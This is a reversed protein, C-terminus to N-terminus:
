SDLWITEYQFGHVTAQSDPKLDGKIFSQGVNLHELSVFGVYPARENLYTLIERVAAKREDPKFLVAQREVMQDVTSEVFGGFNLSGKSHYVQRLATDPDYYGGRGAFGVQFEGNRLTTTHVPNELLRIQQPQVVGQGLRNWQSHLLQSPTEGSGGVDATIDFRIPRERSFGAASLLSIAERVADDKQQRWALFRRPFEEQPFDWSDMLGSLHSSFGGRGTYIEAWGPIGEHHDVLLLMARTVRSDNFPERKTNQWIRYVTNTKWWGTWYKDRQEDYIKKAASGPPVSLQIQGALFAAYEAQEDKIVVFNAADVYPLGPKWYDPNRVASWDTDRVTQLIFPGTGVAQEATNPIKGQWSEVLEPALIMVNQDSINFLAPVYPRKTTVKISQNDIKQIKDIEDFLTRPVIQPEPTRARELSFVVDDVTLARGNVPAKNQWKIGPRLTFVMETESPQQWKEALEPELEFTAPNHRILTQYFLGAWGVHSVQAKHPDLGSPFAGGRNNRIFTGGRKPQASAPASTSPSTTEGRCAIATGAVIGLGALASGRLLRRRSFRNQWYGIEESMVKEKWVEEHAFVGRESPTRQM